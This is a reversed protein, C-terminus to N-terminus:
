RVAERRAAIRAHRIHEIIMQNREFVGNSFENVWDAAKTTSSGHKDVNPFNFRAFDAHYFQHLAAMVDVTLFGEAPISWSRNIKPLPPVDENIGIAVLHTKLDGPLNSIESIDYIRTYAIDDPLLLSVQAQWHPDCRCPDDHSIVQALFHEFEVFKDDGPPAYAEFGPEILFIKERWVSFFRDYPHRIVCFRFWGPKSIIEQLREGSFATLPPLPMQQRDHILMPLTTEDILPNFRLPASTVLARLMTKISSCAVKPTAVYLIRRREDVYSGYELCGRVHKDTFIGPQTVAEM